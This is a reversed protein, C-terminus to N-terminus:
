QSEQERQANLEDQILPLGQQAVAAQQQAQLGQQYEELTKVFSGTEVGSVKGVELLINHYNIMLELHQPPISGQAMSNFIQLAEMETSRGLGEIGTILQLEVVNEPLAALVGTKQLFNETLTVVPGQIDEAMQGFAGGLAVDLERALYSIETATVREGSRQITSGMFFAERLEERTERLLGAATQLDGFKDLKTTGIDEEVGTICAGNDAMEFDQINTVGAPNFLFVVRAAIAAIDLLAESLGEASALDGVIKDIFSRGYDEGSHHEWRLPRFPVLHEPYTAETGPVLKEDAEQWSDFMKPGTRRFCTYIETTEKDPTRYEPELMVSAVEERVISKLINDASDRSVVYNRLPVFRFRASKPVQWLAGNGGIILNRLLEAIRPRFWPQELTRWVVRARDQLQQDVAPKLGKSQSVESEGEATLRHQFWQVGTPFLTTLLKSTLNEVGRSGVSQYPDNFNSSANHGDQPFVIPQTLLSARQARDMFHERAGLM